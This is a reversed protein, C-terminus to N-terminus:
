WVRGCPFNVLGTGKSTNIAYFMNHFNLVELADLGTSFTSDQVAAAFGGESIKILNQTSWIDHYSPIMKGETEKTYWFPDEHVKGKLGAFIHKPRLYEVIDKEFSPVYGWFGGETAEYVDLIHNEFEIRHDPVVFELKPGKRITIM